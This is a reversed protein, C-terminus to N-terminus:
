GRGRNPVNGRCGSDGQRWMAMQECAAEIVWEGIPMILGTEEAIPIFEDPNVRGLLASDWRLLGEVGVIRGNTADVCPQYHLLLEDREVAHRLQSEIQLRREARETMDSSFFYARNRGTSKAHYMAVDALRMLEDISSIVRTVRGQTAEIAKAVATIVDAEQTVDAFIKKMSRARDEVSKCRVAAFTEGDLVPEIEPFKEKVYVLLRNADGLNCTFMILCDRGSDSRVFPGGQVAIEDNLDQEPDFPDPLWHHAKERKRGPALDKRWAPIEGGASKM